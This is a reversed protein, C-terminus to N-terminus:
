CVVLNDRHIVEDYAAEGLLGRLESTKKGCIREIDGSDYNSLGQAVARGDRTRVAVVEGRAFEGEVGVVGAPLLSRNKEALARAAGEDVIIAGAPQVSTIWRSRSSMKRRAPVFLTGLDEGDLLRSLVDAMRGDAVIMAQGASSVMRAAKIKSDM